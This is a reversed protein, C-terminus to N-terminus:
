ERYLLYRLLKIAELISSHIYLAQSCNRNIHRYLLVKIIIIIVIIICVCIGILGREQPYRRPLLSVSSCWREPVGYIM